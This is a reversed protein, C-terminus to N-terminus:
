VQREFRRADLITQYKFDLLPPPGPREYELFSNTRVRLTSWFLVSRQWLDVQYALFQLTPQQNLHVSPGPDAAGKRQDVELAVSAKSRSRPPKKSHQTAATM